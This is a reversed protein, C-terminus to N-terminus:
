GYDRDTVRLQEISFEPLTVQLEMDAFIEITVRWCVLTIYYPCDPVPVVDVQNTFLSNANCDSQTQYLTRPAQLNLTDGMRLYDPYLM